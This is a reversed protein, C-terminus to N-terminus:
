RGTPRIAAHTSTQHPVAADLADHRRPTSYLGAAASPQWRTTVRAPVKEAVMLRRCQDRHHTFTTDEHGAPAHDQEEFLQTYPKGAATSLADDALLDFAPQLLLSPSGPLRVEVHCRLPLEVSNVRQCVFVDRNGSAARSAPRQYANGPTVLRIPTRTVDPCTRGAPQQASRRTEAGGLGAIETESTMLKTLSAIGSSPILQPHVNNGPRTEGFSRFVRQNGDIVVM